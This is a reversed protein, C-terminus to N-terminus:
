FRTFISPRTGRNLEQSLVFEIRVATWDTAVSHTTSTAGAATAAAIPAACNAHRTCVVAAAATNIARYALIFGASNTILTASNSSLVRVAAEFPTKRYHKTSYLKFPPM